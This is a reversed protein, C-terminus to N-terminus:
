IMACLQSLVHKQRQYDDQRNDSAKIFPLLLLILRQFTIPKHKHLTPLTNIVGKLSVFYEITGLYDEDKELEELKDEFDKLHGVEAKDM